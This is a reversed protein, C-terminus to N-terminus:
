IKGKIYDTLMSWDKAELAKSVIDNWKQQPGLNQGDNTELQYLQRIKAETQSLKDRIDLIAPGYNKSDFWTQSLQKKLEISMLLHIDYHVQEHRLSRAMLGAEKKVTDALWSSFSFYPIIKFLFKSRDIDVKLAQLKSLGIFMKVDSTKDTIQPAAGKFELGTLKMETMTFGNNLRPDIKTLDENKPQAIASITVGLFLLAFLSKLM